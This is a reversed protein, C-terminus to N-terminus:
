FVSSGRIDRDCFFLNCRFSLWIFCCDRFCFAGNDIFYSAKLNLHLPRGVVPYIMYALLEVVNGFMTSGLEKNPVM